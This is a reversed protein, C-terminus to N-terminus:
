ANKDGGAEEFESIQRIKQEAGELKGYCLAALASGEEFLKLSSDLSENGNELRDVIEGLKTMADEFTMKKNM